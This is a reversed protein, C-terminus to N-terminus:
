TVCTPHNDPVVGKAMPTPLFSLGCLNVLKRINNRDNSYAAYKGIILLPQKSDAIISAAKSVASHEAMSIPPQQCCEVYNVSNKNVELNVLDGPIDIYCSGPRGYM